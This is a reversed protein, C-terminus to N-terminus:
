AGAELQLLAPGSMELREFVMQGTGTVAYPLMVQPLTVFRAESAM